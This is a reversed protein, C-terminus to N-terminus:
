GGLVMESAGERIERPLVLQERGPTEVGSKM